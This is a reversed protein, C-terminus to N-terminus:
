LKKNYTNKDKIYFIVFPLVAAIFVYELTFQSVSLIRMLVELKSLIMVSIFRFMNSTLLLIVWLMMLCLKWYTQYGAKYLVLGIVFFAIVPEIFTTTAIATVEWPYPMYLVNAQNPYVLYQQQILYGLVTDRESLIYEMLYTKIAIFLIIALLVCFVDLIKSGNQKSCGTVKQMWNQATKSYCYKRFSAYTFVLISIFFMEVILPAYQHVWLFAFKKDAVYGATLPLRIFLENMACFIGFLILFIKTSSITNFSDKIKVSLWLMVLIQGILFGYKIVNLYTAIDPSSAKAADNPHPVGAFLMAIHIGVALAGIVWLAFIVNIRQPLNLNTFM